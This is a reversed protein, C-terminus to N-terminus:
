ECRSHRCPTLILGWHLAYLYPFKVQRNNLAPMHRSFRWQMAYPPIPSAIKLTLGAVTWHAIKESFFGYLTGCRGYYWTCVNRDFTTLRLRSLISHIFRWLLAYIM